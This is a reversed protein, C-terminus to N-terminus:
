TLIPCTHTTRNIEPDFHFSRGLLCTNPDDPHLIRMVAKGTVVEDLISVDNRELLDESM